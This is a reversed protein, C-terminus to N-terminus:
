FEKVPDLGVVLFVFVRCGWRFYPISGQPKVQGPIYVSQGDRHLYWGNSTRRFGGGNPAGQTLPPVPWARHFDVQNKCLHPLPFV